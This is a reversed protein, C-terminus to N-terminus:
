SNSLNKSEFNKFWSAWGYKSDKNLSREKLRYFRFLSDVYLSVISLTVKYSYVYSGPMMLSLNKLWNLYCDSPLISLFEKMAPMILTYTLVKSSFIRMVKLMYTTNIKHFKKPTKYRGTNQKYFTRNQRHHFAIARLHVCWELSRAM